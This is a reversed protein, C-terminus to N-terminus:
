AIPIRTQVELDLPDGSPNQLFKHFGLGAIMAANDMTLAAPPWFIPMQPFKEAFLAKLRQNNCVGGGLYIAKCPFKQIALTAKTLIDRLATEQFSAAVDAKQAPSLPPNGVGNQGKVAYLVNTKLGSFSFDLPNKKVKGAHFSYNLQGALALREVHPGGPYPLGLLAAVKDFAEGIADDVTTGLCTYHGVQNMQLMLTHGGSLVLGLAPFLWPEPAEMMAAYLHAEVHNVGILPKEWAISLGKAANMGILLAGVLGPGKAVAIADIESASVEAQRLAEQIVPIIVDIHRRCALEPFVGGYREHIDSSSAVVNSLVRKGNLVLAAGTEDCTTEIGLVIM